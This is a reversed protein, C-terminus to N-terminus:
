LPLVLIYKEFNIGKESIRTMRLIRLCVVLRSYSFVHQFVVYARLRCQSPMFFHVKELIIFRFIVKLDM